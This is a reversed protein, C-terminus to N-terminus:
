CTVKVSYGLDQLQAIECMISDHVWDVSAGTIPDTGNSRVGWSKSFAWEEDIWLRLVWCKDKASWNIWAEKKANAM